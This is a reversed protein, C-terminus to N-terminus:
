AIQITELNRQYGLEFERCFAFVMEFNFLVHAIIRQVLHTIGTQPNLFNRGM